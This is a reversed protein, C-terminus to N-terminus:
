TFLAKGGKVCRISKYSSEPIVVLVFCICCHVHIQPMVSSGRYCMMHHVHWIQLKPIPEIFCQWLCMPGLTYISDIVQTIEGALYFEVQM